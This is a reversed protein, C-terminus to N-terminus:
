KEKKIEDKNNNLKGSLFNKTSVSNGTWIKRMTEVESTKTSFM